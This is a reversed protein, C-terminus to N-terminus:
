GPPRQVLLAEVDEIAVGSLVNTITIHEFHAERLENAKALAAAITVPETFEVPGALGKARIIYRAM